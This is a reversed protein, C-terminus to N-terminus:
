FDFNLWRGRLFIEADWVDRHYGDPIPCEGSEVAFAGPESLLILSMETGM